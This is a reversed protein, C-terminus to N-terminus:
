DGYWGETMLVAETEGSLADGVMREKIYDSILRTDSASATQYGNNAGVGASRVAFDVRWSNRERCAVARISDDSGAVLFERCPEGNKSAFSLVPQFSGSSEGFAVSQGSPTTELVEFLPNGPAARAAIQLNSWAANGQSAGLYFVGTSWGVVLAISAAIATPWFRSRGLSRSRDAELSAISAGNSALMTLVSQPLQRNVITSAADRMTSDAREFRALRARLAPDSDLAVRVEEAQSTGLEGDLFASLTEDTITTM